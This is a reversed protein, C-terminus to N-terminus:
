WMLEVHKLKRNFIILKKTSLLEIYFIFLFLLWSSQKLNFEFKYEVGAIVEIQNLSENLVPLRCWRCERPDSIVQCNDSAAFLVVWRVWKTPRCELYVWGIRRIVKRKADWDHVVTHHIGKSPATCFSEVRSKDKKKPQAPRPESTNRLKNM